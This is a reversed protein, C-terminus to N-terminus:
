QSLYADVPSGRSPAPTEHDHHMLRAIPSQGLVGSLAPDAPQDSDDQPRRATRRPRGPHFRHHDGLHHGPEKGQPVPLGAVDRDGLRVSGADARRGPTGTAASIVTSRATDMSVM